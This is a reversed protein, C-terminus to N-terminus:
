KVTSGLIKDLETISMEGAIKRGDVFFTPTADIKFVDAARARVQLIQDYLTQNKLCTEFDPQSMGFQMAIDLLPQAPNDVFAWSSQRDFLLDVMRDRKGPGACRALMFAATARPDLPFERLIFKVRGSDVYKAKLEPWVREHFAACHSCTMSAYEVITVPASASGQAIDPLAGPAMLARPPAAADPVAPQALSPPVAAALWLAASLVLFARARPLLSIDGPDALESKVIVRHAAEAFNSKAAMGPCASSARAKM